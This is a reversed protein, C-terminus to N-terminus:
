CMVGPCIHPAKALNTPPVLWLAKTSRTVTAERLLTAFVRTRVSDTTMGVFFRPPEKREGKM